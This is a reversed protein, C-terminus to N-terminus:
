SAEIALSGDDFSREDDLSLWPGVRVGCFGPMREAPELNKGNFVLPGAAGNDLLGWAIIPDRWVVGQDRFLAFSAPQAPLLQQIRGGSLAVPAPAPKAQPQASTTAGSTALTAPRPAPASPAPAPRQPAAAVPAERVPTPLMEARMHVTKMASCRCAQMSVHGSKGLAAVRSRTTERNLNLADAVNQMVLCAHGASGIRMRLYDYVEANPQSLSTDRGAPTSLPAGITRPRVQAHAPM